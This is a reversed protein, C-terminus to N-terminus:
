KGGLINVTIRRVQYNLTKEDGSKRALYEKCFIPHSSIFFSRIPAKDTNFAEVPKESVTSQKVNYLIAKLIIQRQLLHVVILANKM